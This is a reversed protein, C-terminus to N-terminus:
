YCSQAHFYYRGANTWTFILSSPYLPEATSTCVTHNLYDLLNDLCLPCPLFVLFLFWTCYLSYHFSLVPHGDDKSAWTASWKFLPFFSFAMIRDHFDSCLSPIAELFWWGIYTLAATPLAGTFQSLAWVSHPCCNNSGRQIQLNARLSTITTTKFKQYDREMSIFCLLFVLLFNYIFSCKM